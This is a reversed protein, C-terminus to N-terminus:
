AIRDLEAEDGYDIGGTPRLLQERALMELERWGPRAEIALAVFEPEPYAYRFIRETGHSSGREHGTPFRDFAAVSAGRRALACAAAVGAGGAGVIM